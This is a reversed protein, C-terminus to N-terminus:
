RGEEALMFPTAIIFNIAAGIKQNAYGRADLDASDLALAKQGLSNILALVAPQTTVENLTVAQGPNNPHALSALDSGEALLAYLHARELPGFNKYGDAIFRQWLWQAIAAVQYQNNAGRPLKRRWDKQVVYDEGFRQESSLFRWGSETAASFHKRFIEASGGAEAGTQHGFVDHHPQFPVVEEDWFLRWTEPIDYYQELNTHTYLNSIQLFRDVSTWQKTRKPSHFFISVAYAQIFKLLDKKPMSRWATRLAIIEDTSLTDDALNQVIMLPLNALSEPHAIDVKTLADIKAAMTAGPIQQHHVEVPFQPHNDIRFQMTEAEWENPAELPVFTMGTLAKATNKISTVEHYDPELVGLIGFGLQHFERAFDENCYCVDDWFENYRHGYQQAIANSLAGVKIVQDYGQNTGLATMVDDYYRVMQWNSVGRRLNVALHFNTEWFGIRQRFPNLGRAQAAMTWSEYAGGWERRNFWQRRDPSMANAPDASSWWESLERLKGSQSSLNDDVFTRPPGSEDFQGTNPDYRKYQGPLTLNSPPSLRANHEGLTLMQIIATAPSADAWARIQADTAHGAFAFTHLVKRVATDDWTQDDVMPLGALLGASVPKVRYLPVMRLVLQGNQLVYRPVMVLELEAHAVPVGLVLTLACVLAGLRFSIRM